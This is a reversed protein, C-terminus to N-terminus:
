LNPISSIVQLYVLYNIDISYKDKIANYVLIIKDETLLHKIKKIGKAVFNERVRADIPIPIQKNNFINENM